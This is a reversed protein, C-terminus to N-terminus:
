VLDNTFISNNNEEGGGHIRLDFFYGRLVCLFINTSRTQHLEVETDETTEFFTVVSFVSFFTQLDLRICNLRQSSQPKLFTVVSYGSLFIFQALIFRYWRNGAATYEFTLVIKKTLLKQLWCSSANPQKKPHLFCM